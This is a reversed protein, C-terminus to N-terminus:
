KRLTCIYNLSVYKGVCKFWRCFVRLDMAARIKAGLHLHQAFTANVTMAVSLLDLAIDTKARAYFQAFTTNAVCKSFKAVRTFGNKRGTNFVATESHFDIMM